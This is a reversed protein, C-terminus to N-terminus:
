TERTVSRRRMVSENIAQIEEEIRADLAGSPHLWDKIRRLMTPDKAALARARAWAVQLVTDPESLESIMGWTFAHEATFPEGSMLLRRARVSGIAKALLISSAAEPPIGIDVFPLRLSAQPAGVVWDAHLLWTVGIGIAAGHVAMVLPKRVASIAHMFRPVPDLPGQPWQEFAALDHGACFTSGAGSVLIARVEAVADARQLGETLATFMPMTLSNRKEPRNIEIHLVPGDLLIRVNETSM